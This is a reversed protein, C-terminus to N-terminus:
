HLTRKKLIEQAFASIVGDPDNFGRQEELSPSLKMAIDLDDNCTDDNNLNKAICRYYYAYANNSNSEIIRTLDSIADNYKKLKLFIVGRQFYLYLYKSPDSEIVKTLDNIAETLMYDEALLSYIFARKIYADAYANNINIAKSLDKISSHYDQLEFHLGARNFYLEAKDPKLQISKDFDAIALLIEGSNIYAVGRNNYVVGDEMGLSIAETYYPIAKTHNGKQSYKRGKKFALVAEKNYKDTM